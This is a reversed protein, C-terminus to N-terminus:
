DRPKLNATKILTEYKSVDSKLIASFADASMPLVIGGMNTVRMKVEPLALIKNIETNYKEVIEDPVGSPAVFGYWSSFEFDPVGAEILTPVSDLGSVRTKTTVGLARLMGSDIFPKTILVTDFCFQVDGAVVAAVAPASGKYPIHQASIGVARKFAEGAVFTISSSSSFNMKEPNAKASRIFEQLTKYGGSPNTVLVFPSSGVMAVARLDRLLDYNSKPYFTKNITVTPTVMGLTYGDAAAKAVVETGIQTDAGPRNEIIVPQSWSVSLKQGILRALIDAGGGPPYPVVIRIPRDPFAAHASFSFLILLLCIVRCRVFHFFM